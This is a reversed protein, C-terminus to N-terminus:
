KIENAKNGANVRIAEVNWGFRAFPAHLLQAMTVAGKGNYISSDVDAQARFKRKTGFEVYPSHKATSTVDYTLNFRAKNFAM